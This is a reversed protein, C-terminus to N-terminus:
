PLVNLYAFISTELLINAIYHKINFKFSIIDIGYPLLFGPCEWLDKENIIKKLFTNDNILYIQYILFLSRIKIQLWTLNGQENSFHGM